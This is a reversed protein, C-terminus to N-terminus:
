RWPTGLQMEGPDGAKSSLFVYNTEGQKLNKLEFKFHCVVSGLRRVRSGWLTIWGTRYKWAGEVEGLVRGSAWQMWPESGTSRSRLCALRSGAKSVADDTRTSPAGGEGEWFPFVKEWRGEMGAEIGITWYLGRGLLITDAEQKNTTKKKKIEELWFTLEM